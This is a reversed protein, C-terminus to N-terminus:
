SHVSSRPGHGARQVAYLLNRIRRHVDVPLQLPTRRIAAIEADMDLLSGLVAVLMYPTSHVGHRDCQLIDTHVACGVNRRLRLLGQDCELHATLVGFCGAPALVINGLDFATHRRGECLLRHTLSLMQRILVTMVALSQGPRKQLVHRWVDSLGSCPPLPEVLYASGAVVFLDTFQTVFPRSFDPSATHPLVPGLATLSEAPRFKHLLVPRGDHRRAARFSQAGSCAGIEAAGQIAFDRLTTAADAKRAYTGTPTMDM